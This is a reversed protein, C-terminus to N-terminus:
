CYITVISILSNVEFSCLTYIICGLAWIDSKIDCNKERRLQEPSMYKYSNEKVENGGIDGIKVKGRHDILLNNPKLNLHSHKHKNIHTLGHVVEVLCKVV